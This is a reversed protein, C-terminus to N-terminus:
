VQDLVAPVENKWDLANPLNNCTIAIDQLIKDKRFVKM